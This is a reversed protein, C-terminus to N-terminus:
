GETPGSYAKVTVRAKPRVMKFGASAPMRTSWRLGEQGLGPGGYAKMVKAKQQVVRYKQRAM